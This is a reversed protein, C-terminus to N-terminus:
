VTFLYIIYAIIAIIQVIILSPFIGQFAITKHKFHKQGLIAGISGGCIAASLLTQNSIRWLKNLAFYKDLGFLIFTVFNIAIFFSIIALFM